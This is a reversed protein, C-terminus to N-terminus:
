QRYAIKNKTDVMHEVNMSHQILAKKGSCSEILRIVSDIIWPTLNPYFDLDRTLKPKFKLGSTLSLSKSPFLNTNVQNSFVNGKLHLKVLSHTVNLNTLMSLNLDNNLHISTSAMLDSALSNKKNVVVGTNISKAKLRKLNLSYM